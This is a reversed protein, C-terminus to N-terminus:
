PRGDLGLRARRNDRLARARPRRARPTDDSGREGRQLRPGGRGHSPERAALFADVVDDVYVFDRATEPAALPPLTGELGRVLIQPVLRTPEEYPGFVSYLRLTPVHLGSRHGMYRCFHTAAAKTIAYVSNPELRESEPPPRRKLGYESSTGANVFAEFGVRTCAELLKITCLVNTEVIRDPDTQESYAGHTALHFVWEPRLREVLRGLREGDMMDVESSGSHELVGEIRWPLYGPRLLLHLEHGEELLRRALNAGVFGSGGTLLVRKSMRGGALSLERLRAGESLPGCASHRRRAREGDVRRRDAPERGPRSEPDHGMSLSGRAADRELEAGRHSGITRTGRLLLDRGLAETPDALVDELRVIHMREPHKERNLLAYYQNLTWGLMYTELPLPVPRKKTDAYASWPNRVVHLVHARPLENLITDADVVVIPSYGVYVEEEGIRVYDKGPRSRLEFSAPSTTQEVVVRTVSRAFMSKAVSTTRFTSPRTGSVQQRPADECTGKSGRRHDRPLGAGADGRSRVGAMSVQGPFVSSLGDVVRRTGLQSEFPYVFMGPHGDLFRQTTNGGNEYMASLFLFRFSESM